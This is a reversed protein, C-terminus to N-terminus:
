CVEVPQERQLLFLYKCGLYLPGLLLAAWLVTYRSAPGSFVLLHVFYGDASLGAVLAATLVWYLKTRSHIQAPAFLFAIWLAPLGMGAGLLSVFIQLTGDSWKLAVVGMLGGFLLAFLMPLLAFPLAPGAILTAPLLGFTMEIWRTRDFGTVRM